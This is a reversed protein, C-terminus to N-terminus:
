NLEIYTLKSSKKEPADSEPRTPWPRDLTQRPFLLQSVKKCIDMIEGLAGGRGAREAAFTFTSWKLKKCNEMTEAKLTSSPVCALYGDRMARVIDSFM